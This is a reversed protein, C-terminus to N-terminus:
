WESEILFHATIQGWVSEPARVPLTISGRCPCRGTTAQNWRSWTEAPHGDELVQRVGAQCAFKARFHLCARQRGSHLHDITLAPETPCAYSACPDAGRVPPSSTLAM